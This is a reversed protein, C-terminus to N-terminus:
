PLRWSPSARQWLRRGGHRSFVGSLIVPARGSLAHLYLIIALLFPVVLWLAKTAAVLLLTTIAITALWVLPRSAFYPLRM